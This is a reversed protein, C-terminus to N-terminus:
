HGFVVAETHYIQNLYGCPYGYIIPHGLISSPEMLKQDDAGQYESKLLARHQCRHHPNQSRRCPRPSTLLWQLSVGVQVYVYM